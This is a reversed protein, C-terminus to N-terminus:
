SGHGDGDLVSYHTTHTKEETLPIDKALDASPTAKQLDITLALKKAHEKSTLHAPIKVFDQDGLFRARDCYARRMAEAMLHLTQPSSRGQKKLDFNELINLMEILCIGGGSPPPPAYVDYGRYVGHVAKRAKASYDALDAKTILGGGSKMEKVLLDATEGKYFGDAGDEAIRKLTRALDKQVLRDGVKWPSKGGNKGYVRTCKPSGGPGRM